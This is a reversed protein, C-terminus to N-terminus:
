ETITFSDVPTFRANRGEGGRLSVDLTDMNIQTVKYLEKLTGQAIESSVNITVANVFLRKASETTDRKSVNVVDLRRYTKVPVGDEDTRGTEVVLTGFRLPLKSYMLQAVIERDHRPHRAYTTIQYMLSVPIPTNIEWGMGEDLAPPTLYDPSVKGRTEREADKTIDILDITVYPYIQARLEQDPQGFWVGVQRDVMDGDAKQDQVTMGQLLQRLAKDEALLFDYDSM